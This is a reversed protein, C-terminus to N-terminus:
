FGNKWLAVIEEIPKARLGLEDDFVNMARYDKRRTANYINIMNTIMPTPVGLKAGVAELVCLNYPLEEEIYRTNINRPGAKFTRKLRTAHIIEYASQAKGSPDFHRVVGPLDYGLAKAIAVRDADIAETLIGVSETTYRYGCWAEAEEIRTINLLAQPAHVVGNITSIAIEFANGSAPKRFRKGYVEELTAIIADTDSFPIGAIPAMTRFPATATETPSVRRGGIMPGGMLGVKATKGADALVKALYLAGGSAPGGSIVITHRDALHPLLRDIVPKQAYAPVALLILDAAAALDAASEAVKVDFTGNIYGSATLKEGRRFAETKEGGPSWMTVGHGLSGLLATGTYAAGGAGAYAVETM